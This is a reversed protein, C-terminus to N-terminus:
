LRYIRLANDHFMAERESDSFGATLRNYAKWLRDYSTMLRDIPFNSGFMVRNPGFWEIPGLVLPQISEQTWALDTMGFGSLKVAVNPCQALTRMAAQWASMSAEDRQVLMGAHDLVFQIDHYRAALLAIDAMQHHYVQVDFSWQRRRLLGLRERWQPMSLWDQEARNLVPNPHRNLVQRIGRVLSCDAHKDLLSEVDADGFNAFAVIGHPFGRSEPRNALDQLWGTEGEPNRPDFNAQVHVSKVLEQNRADNLFDSVLYNARLPSWDGWGREHMPGALLPYHHASTDWLHHHSDIIRM